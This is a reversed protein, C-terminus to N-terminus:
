SAPILMGNASCADNIFDTRYNLQLLWVSGGSVITVDASHLPNTSSQSGVLTLLEAANDNIAATNVETATSGTVDTGQAQWSAGGLNFVLTVDSNSNNYLCEETLSLASNLDVLGGAQDNSAAVNFDIATAGPGPVGQVGQIGQDGKAGQSGQSGQDGKAGQPGQAGTPGTVGAPGAANWSLKSDGRACSGAKYLAGGHKKVCVNITGGASAAYAGGGAACLLAVASFGVAIRDRSIIARMM